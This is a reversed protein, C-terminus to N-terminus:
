PLANLKDRLQQVAILSRRVTQEDLWNEYFNIHLLNAVSFLHLISEDDTEAVIRSVAQHLLAHSDHPWQRRACLAKVAQAAAGWGKESAQRVDGADLEARAQDLLHLSAQGYAQTTM